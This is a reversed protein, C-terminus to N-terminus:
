NQCDRFKSQIESVIIKDTNPFFDKLSLEQKEIEKIRQPPLEKAKIFELFEIYKRKRATLISQDNSKQLIWGSIDTVFDQEKLKIM